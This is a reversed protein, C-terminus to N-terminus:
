FGRRSKPAKNNKQASIVGKLDTILKKRLLYLEDETSEMQTLLSLAEKETIKDISTEMRDMYSKMKEHRLVFQKDEFTNYIPWFKEAEQPTLALEDSIFAIKLSKVKDRKGQPPQAYTIASIFILLLSIQKLYTKM